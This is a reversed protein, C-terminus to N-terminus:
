PTIAGREGGFSTDYQSNNVFTAMGALFAADAGYFEGKSVGNADLTASTAPNYAEATGTFSSGAISADVSIGLAGNQFGGSLSGNGFDANLSGYLEDGSAAFQNLGNVSYVATGSSPMSVGDKDGVYFVARDSFGSPGSWSWEGFWVDDSIDGVGVFTFYGLGTHDPDPGTGRMDLQRAVEGYHLAQGTSDLSALFRIDVIQSKTMGGADIGIGSLNPQHPGWPGGSQGIAIYTGDSVDGAFPAAQAVCSLSLSLVLAGFATKKTTVKM